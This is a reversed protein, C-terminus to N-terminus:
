LPAPPPADLRGQVEITYFDRCRPGVLEFVVADVRDAQFQIQNGRAASLEGIQRGDVFVAVPTEKAPPAALVASLGRVAASTTLTDGWGCGQRAAVIQRALEQWRPDQPQLAAGLELIAAAAIISQRDEDRPAASLWKSWATSPRRGSAWCGGPIPWSCATSCGPPAGGKPPMDASNRRFAPSWRTAIRRAAAELAAANEKEFNEDAAAHEALAHVAYVELDM